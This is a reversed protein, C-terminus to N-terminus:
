RQPQRAQQVILAVFDEAGVLVQESLEAVRAAYRRMTEPDSSALLAQQYPTWLRRLTAVGAKTHATALPSSEIQLLVSTFHAHSLHLEMDAPGGNIDWTRYFYYKAMRQSLMRQRGALNVLHDLPDGSSVDYALTVDHAAKQLNESANYLEAAGAKSPPALLLPKCFRWVEAVRILARQVAPSPQFSQLAVLQADFTDMSEQLVQRATEAQIAQGLQLYAKVMRQSLMRQRGAISIASAHDLQAAMTAATDAYAAAPLAMCAWVTFLWVCFRLRDM